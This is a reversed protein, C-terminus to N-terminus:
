WEGTSCLHGEEFYRRFRSHMDAYDPSGRTHILSEAVCLALSTDDTWQGASLGHPGGDRMGKVEEFSGAPQFESRKTLVTLLTNHSPEGVLPQVSPM